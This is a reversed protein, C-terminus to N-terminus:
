VNSLSLAFWAAFRTDIEIGSSNTPILSISLLVFPFSLFPFPLPFRRPDFPSASSLLLESSIVSQQSLSFARNTVEVESKEFRGRSICFAAKVCLSYHSDVTQWEGIEFVNNMESLLSFQQTLSKADRIKMCICKQSGKRILHWVFVVVAFQRQCVQEESRVLQRNVHSQSTALIFWFRFM